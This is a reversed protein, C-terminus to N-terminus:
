LKVFCGFDMSSHQCFTKHGSIPTKDVLPLTSGYRFTVIILALESFRSSKLARITDVQINWQLMCTNTLM